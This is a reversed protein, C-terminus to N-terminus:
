QGMFPVPIRFLKESFEFPRSVLFCDHLKQMNQGRKKARKYDKKFQSAFSPKYM